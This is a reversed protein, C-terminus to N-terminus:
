LSKVIRKLDNYYQSNNINHHKLIINNEKDTAFYNFCWDFFKNDIKIDNSLLQFLIILSAKSVEKNKGKRIWKVPEFGKEVPLPEGFVHLFNYEKTEPSIFGNETAKLQNFLEKLQDTKLNHNLKIENPKNHSNAEIDPLYVIISKFIKNVLTLMNFYPNGAVNGGTYNIIDPNNKYWETYSLLLLPLKEGIENEIYKYNGQNRFEKDLSNKFTGYLQAVEKFVESLENLSIKQISQIYKEIAENLNKLDRNFDGENEPNWQDLFEILPNLVYSIMEQSFKNKLELIINRAEIRTINYFWLVHSVHTFDAFLHNEALRENINGFGYALSNSIEKRISPDNINFVKRPKSTDIKMKCHTYITNVKSPFAKLASAHNPVEHIIKSYFAEGQLPSKKYYMEIYDPIHNISTKVSFLELVIKSYDLENGSIKIDISPPFNIQEKEEKQEVESIWKSITFNYLNKKEDCISDAKEATKLEFIIQKLFLVFYYVSGKSTNLYYNLHYDLFERIQRDKDEPDSLEISRLDRDLLINCYLRSLLWNEWKKRYPEGNEM